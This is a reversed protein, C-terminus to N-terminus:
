EKRTGFLGSPQLINTCNNIGNGQGVATACDMGQSIGPRNEGNPMDPVGSPLNDGWGEPVGSPVGSPAAPMTCNNFGNGSGVANACSLFNSPASANADRADDSPLPQGCSYLCLTFPYSTTYSGPFM